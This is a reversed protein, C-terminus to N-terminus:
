TPDVVKRPDRTVREGNHIYGKWGRLGNELLSYKKHNCTICEWDGSELFRLRTYHPQGCRKCEIWQFKPVKM